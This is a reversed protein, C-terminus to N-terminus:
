GSIEVNPRRGDWGHVMLDRLLEEFAGLKGDGAAYVRGHAGIAADAASRGEDLAAFAGVDEIGIAVLVDVVDAGPPRQDEAMAM